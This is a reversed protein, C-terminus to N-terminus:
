IHILSLHLALKGYGYKTRDENRELHHTRGNLTYTGNMVRNAFPSLMAGKWGVNAHVATANRGHDLLVHKLDGRPTKLVLAETKGGLAPVVEVYEGTASNRLSKLQVTEAGSSFSVDIIEFTVASATTLLLLLM